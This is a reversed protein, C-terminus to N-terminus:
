GPLSETFSLVAWFGDQLWGVLVFEKPEWWVTSPVEQLLSFCEDHPQLVSSAIQLGKPAPDDGTYGGLANPNTKTEGTDSGRSWVMWLRVYSVKWLHVQVVLFKCPWTMSVMLLLLLHIRSYIPVRMSGQKSQFSWLVRILIKNLHLWITKPPYPFIHPTQFPKCSPLFHLCPTCFCSIGKTGLSSSSAILGTFETM